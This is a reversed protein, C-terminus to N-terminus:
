GRLGMPQARTYRDIRTAAMTKRLNGLFARDIMGM